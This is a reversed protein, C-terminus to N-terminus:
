KVLERLALAEKSFDFKPDKGLDDLIETTSVPLVPAGKRADVWREMASASKLLLHKEVESFEVKNEYWAPRFSLVDGPSVLWSTFFQKQFLSQSNKLRIVNVRSFEVPFRKAFEDVQDECFCIVSVPQSIASILGSVHVGAGLGVVAVHDRNVSQAVRRVWVAAEKEPDRGLVKNPM